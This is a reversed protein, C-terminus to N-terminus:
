QVVLWSVSIGEGARLRLMYTGAALDHLGINEQLMIASPYANRYVTMGNLGIIEVEVHGPRTGYWELTIEDEAPNPYIRIRGNAPDEWGSLHNGTVLSTTFTWCTDSSFGRFANGQYDRIAGPDVRVHYTGYLPLPSSLMIQVAYAATDFGIQDGTVPHSEIQGGNEGHISISGTGPFVRENFVMGLTPSLPVGTSHNPPSLQIIQPDLTDLLCIIGSEAHLAPDQTSALRLMMSDIGVDAPIQFEWSSDGAPIGGKSIMKWDLERFDFMSIHIRDIDSSIWSVTLMDGAYATDGAMPRLLRLRTDGPVVSGFAQGQNVSGPTSPQDAMWYFDEYVSGGGSLQLSEGEGTASGEEVGMDTGTTGAAPGNGATFSGEYTLFQIVAGAADILAIGDPGNQISGPADWWGTGFGNLQGPISGSLCVSDYVFGGNGNYFLVKWGTLDTGAPGAVEFGENVDSGANDYHIENLFVTTQACILGTSCLGAMLLLSFIASSKMTVLNLHVFQKKQDAM